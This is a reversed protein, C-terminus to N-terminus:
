LLHPRVLFLVDIFISAAIIIFIYVFLLIKKSRVGYSEKSLDMASFFVSRAHVIKYFKMSVFFLVVLSLVQLVLLAVLTLLGFFSGQLDFVFVDYM